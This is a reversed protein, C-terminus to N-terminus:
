STDREILQDYVRLYDRAMREVTFEAEFVRRCRGRDIRDLLSLARVAGDADDVVYGTIGDRMVEPVAGRRYAIVPTGCAMAEIMVLGFPEPWQIPFLLARAGGLFRSKDREAIEGVFEFLPHDLRPRIRAEYYARDVADVKAAIKLPMGAREAILLAEEIGKDPCIRGLFALYQGPEGSPEFVERPMGHHVTALWLLSSLPARQANSISVFPADSFHALLRPLEPSDLRSHLTTVQPIPQRKWAPLPLFDLHFHVVDFAGARKFVEEVLLMHLLFSDHNREDLRLAAPCIPVLRARTRSDGSAFLTVEHGQRVLEETLYSVIRETGGYLRPPVSEIVPAVQAIRM